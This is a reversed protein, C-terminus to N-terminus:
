PPRNHGFYRAGPNNRDVHLHSEQGQLMVNGIRNYVIETFWLTDNSGDIIGVPLSDVRPILFEIMTV